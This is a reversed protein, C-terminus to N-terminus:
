AWEFSAVKIGTAHLMRTLPWERPWSRATPWAARFVGVPGLRAPLAGNLQPQGLFGGPGPMFPGRMGLPGLVNALANALARRKARLPMPPRPCLARQSTGETELAAPGLTAGPLRPDAHAMVLGWIM